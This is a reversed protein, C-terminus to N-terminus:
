STTRGRLEDASRPFVWLGWTAAYLQHRDGVQARLDRARDYKTAVEDIPGRGSQLAVGLAMQLPIELRYREKKNEVEELLELARSFHAIAEPCAPQRGAIQGARLWHPIARVIIGAETHHHAVVEPTADAVTPFRAELVDAIRAHLHQRRSKLLSQYAADQVLAHKFAYGSTPPTGRRFILESALLQDLAAVLDRESLPSVAALLDHPFERGIVAATQAVEKASALRDLRAM